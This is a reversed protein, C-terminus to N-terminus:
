NWSQTGKWSRYQKRTTNTDNAKKTQSFKSVPKGRVSCVEKQISAYENQSQATDELNTHNTATHNGVCGGHRANVHANKKRKTIHPTIFILCDILLDIQINFLLDILRNSATCEELFSLAITFYPFMWIVIYNTPPCETWKNDQITHRVPLCPSLNM